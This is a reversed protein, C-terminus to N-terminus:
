KREYCRLQDDYLVYIRGAAAAPAANDPSDVDLRWLYDGSDADRCTMRGRSSTIVEGSTACPGGMEVLGENRRWLLHGTAADRATIWGSEDTLFVRGAAAALSESGSTTSERVNWIEKGDDTRFARLYRDKTFAVVVGPAALTPGMNPPAGLAKRWREKGSDVDLRVLAGDATGCVVLDADALLAGAPAIPKSFVVDGTALDFAKVGLNKFAAFVRRGVIAPAANSGYPADFQWAVHGDKTDLAVLGKGTPVVLREAALVGSATVGGAIESLWLRAGDKSAFARVVGEESLCAVYAGAPVVAGQLLTKEHVETKWALSPKTRPLDGSAVGSRTPGGRLGPWTQDEGTKARQADDLRALIGRVRFRIEANPDALAKDLFPRVVDGMEVLAGSAEDRTKADDAGLLRVYGEIKARTELDVDQGALVGSAFLAGAAAIAACGATARTTRRLRM